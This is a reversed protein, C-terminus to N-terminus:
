YYISLNGINPIFYIVYTNLFQKEKPSIRIKKKCFVMFVKRCDKLMRKDLKTYKKAFLVHIKFETNDMIM